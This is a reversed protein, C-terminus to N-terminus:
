PRHVGTKYRGFEALRRLGAVVRAGDTKPMSLIRTDGTLAILGRERTSLCGPEAAAVLAMTVLLRRRVLVGTAGPPDHIDRTCIESDEDLAGSAVAPSAPPGRKEGRNEITTATKLSASFTAGTVASIM